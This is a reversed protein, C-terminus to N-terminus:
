LPFITAPSFFSGNLSIFCYFFVLGHGDIERDFIFRILHKLHIISERLKSQQKSQNM